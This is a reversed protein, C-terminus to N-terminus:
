VNEEGEKIYQFAERVVSLVKDLYRYHNNKREPIDRWWDDGLIDSWYDFDDIEDVESLVDYYERAEYEDYVGNRRKNFIEKKAKEFLKDIDIEDLKNPSDTCNFNDILYDNECRLFFDICDSGMAGWFACWVTAYCRITIRGVGKEFDEIFITINDCGKIDTIEYKKVVNSSKVQM